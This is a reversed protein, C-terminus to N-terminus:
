DDFFTYLKYESNLGTRSQFQVLTQCLVGGFASTANEGKPAKRGIYLVSVGSDELCGM